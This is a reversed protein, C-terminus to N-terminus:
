EYLKKGKKSSYLEENEKIAFLVIELGNEINTIFSSHNYPTLCWCLQKDETILTIIYEKEKYTVILKCSKFDFEFKYGNKVYNDYKEQDELLLGIQKVMLNPIDLM